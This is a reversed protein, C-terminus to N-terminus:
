NVQIYTSLDPRSAVWIGTCGLAWEGAKAALLSDLIAEAMAQAADPPVANGIRDRWAADSKGALVLPRGDPLVVPFSQIAANELATLPRHWTGDLAVIVFIGNDNDDPIRPDAVAACGAHVDASGTVTVSPEDWKMVGYTGNRAQCTRPDTIRYGNSFPVRPDAVSIAGGAPRHAGTVTKAPEDWKIVQLLNCKANSGLHFRPDTLTKGSPMDWSAIEYADEPWEVSDVLSNLSRHDGGACVLALRVWTKFQLKPLRHMPGMAPDGPLPLASLIEGISRVRRKPPNYIHNPMKERNRAILLYRRRHQGLGGIVGCDHTGKKDDIPDFEYGYEKLYAKVKKLLDAGRSTIRPVNELMIVAPMDDGFAEVVLEMCRLVLQNLAQYKASKANEESLLPSLGKCPPSLFIADPYERGCANLIDEGTAERWDDPPDCGFFAIHQERTFFDMQVAPAGTLMAFDQCALPDVDIGALTEFMGVAGKYEGRAKQFGLAAGGLGCCLHLVKFKKL